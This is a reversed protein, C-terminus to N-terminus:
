EEDWGFVFLNNNNGKTLASLVHIFGQTLDLNSQWLKWYYEWSRYFTKPHMPPQHTPIVLERKETAQLATITEIIDKQYASGILNFGDMEDALILSEHMVSMADLKSNPYIDWHQPNTIVSKRDRKPELESQPKFISSPGSISQWVVDGNLGWTIQKGSGRDSNFQIDVVRIFMLDFDETYNTDGFKGLQEKIM